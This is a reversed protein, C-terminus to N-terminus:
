AVIIPSYFTLFIILNMPKIFNLPANAVGGVSGMNPQQQMYLLLCYKIIICKKKCTQTILSCEM